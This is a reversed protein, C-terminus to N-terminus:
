IVKEHEDKKERERSMVGVPSTRPRGTKAIRRSLGNM